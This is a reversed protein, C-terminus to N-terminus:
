HDAFARIHKPPRQTAYKKIMALDSQSTIGADRARQRIDSWDAGSRMEERFKMMLSDHMKNVQSSELEEPTKTMYGPAPTIGIMQPSSLYGMITPEVDEVKSQQIYNRVGFPTMQKLAYEAYDLAQQTKTDGPSRIAGGFFDKNTIIQGVTSLLPHMKNQITNFPNDGYKLFGTIDHGYEAIDKMYTPLSIRDETGDPRVKGTKPFFLDKLESPGKGTYLYQTLAGAIASMFTLAFIYSTRDSLGNWQIKGNADKKVVDKIDIVGGGIERFTGLNWGVSRTSVMLADKLARNWFVNDYVIEGMRNDVSDWLKGMVERKREISMEPEHDIADKAMDFFVGLKQRPVLYEFIPKNIMDMLRPLAKMVVTKYSGQRLAQRFENIGQNRYVDDMKVRGGASVLSEVIASLEPDHLNGMYAKLLRDGKMLNLIPQAPNLAQFVNGAGKIIDGRTAQKIGLAAKSIMADLTTFGLHFASLGLQAGNMFNGAKRILDYVPMGALGPSLHNNIITAAAEPAYYEGRLIMGKEAESWQQVRAIKDDIKVWGDPAHDGFRVFKAIGADKMEGFIKQGYIYRDMERAKLLALEVPNTTIPKLGADLGQKFYDYTRQKLFGKGGELPRRSFLNAATTKDEWIHPFYNENFNELQGKGLAIVADRRADLVKRLAIAAPALDGRVPIGREMRDIFEYNDKVPMTDFRKAFERLNEEAMILQHVREGSNARIIGATKLAADRTAPTFVKAISDGIPKAPGHDIPKVGAYLDYGLGRRDEEPITAPKTAAKSALVTDGAAERGGVLVEPAGKLTKTAISILDEPRLETAWRYWDLKQMGPLNDGLSRLASRFWSLIRQSLPLKPNAELFYGMAEKNMNEPTTGAERARDFAAAVAPNKAKNMLAFENTLQRYGQSDRGMELAHNAIEHLALGMLREPSTSRSINDAVFRTIGDAPDYYALIRGDKSHLIDGNEKNTSDSLVEGLADTFKEQNPAVNIIKRLEDGERQAVDRAMNEHTSFRIKLGNVMIYRSTPSGGLDSYELGLGDLIKLMAAHQAWPHAHNLDSLENLSPLRLNDRAKEEILRDVEKFGADTFEENEADWYKPNKTIGSLDVGGNQEINRIEEQLDYDNLPAQEKRAANLASEKVSDPITAGDIAKSMLAEGRVRAPVEDATVIKVKGTAELADVFKQGGMRGAIPDLAASLAPRFTEPTHPNTVPTNGRSFMLHEFENIKAIRDADDGRKYFRIDTVGNKRLADLAKQSIDHPVVAGAFEPIGVDRLIKAEFYEAPLTRLRDLFVAIDKQKDVPVDGFGNEKLARPIGMKVADYMTSSMTDSFRFEGGVSHYPAFEDRLAFFDKDIEAKVAEFNAKDMLRGKAAKIQAISKLQPTVAARINGVGYNFDEGGRLEKKLIKVVNELTHPTYKPRGMDTYGRFLKENPSITELLDVAYKELDNRLGADYIQGEMLRNTAATDITGSAASDMRYQNVQRAAERVLYSVGRNAANAKLGAIEDAAAKADGDYARVLDDEHAKYAADIFEPDKELDFPHRSDSSFPKLREPLPKAEKRVVGPDIGREKLFQWRVAPSRELERPGNQSVEDWDISSNTADIADKLRGEASKRMNSTFDYTIKPYRPSYIDAGFVRTGAYGRPDAMDKSALLTIEGFGTLPQGKKTIALSPVALGGMKAAHLLNEETLNHQAVLDREDAAKSFLPANTKGELKDAAARLHDAPTMEAAPVRIGYKGSETPHPYAESPLGQATMRAAYQRAQQETYARGTTAAPPTVQGSLVAETNPEGKTAPEPVAVADRAGTRLGLQKRESKQINAQQEALKINRETGYSFGVGKHEVVSGDPLRVPVILNSLKDQLAKGYSELMARDPHAALFEDGSRHFANVGMEAAISAKTSGIARLIQDAEDHGYRSNIAKFDDVDGYLVHSDPHDALHESFARNNPLGTLDSTLLANAREEPTMDAVRRRTTLDHRRDGSQTVEETPTAEQAQLANPTRETPEVIAPARVPEVTPEVRIPANIVADAAAVPDAATMVADAEATPNSELPKQAVEALTQEKATTMRARDSEIRDALPTTKGAQIEALQQEFTPEAAPKLPRISQLDDTQATPEAPAPRGTAVQDTEAAPIEPTSVKGANARAAQVGGIGGFVLANAAIDKPDFWNTKDTDQGALVDIGKNSVTSAVSFGAGVAAQGVATIVGAATATSAKSALGSFLASGKTAVAPGATNLVFSATAHALADGYSKGEDINAQLSDRFAPIGFYGGMALLQVLKAEPLAFAPAIAGLLDASKGLVTDSGHEAQLGQWNKRVVDWDAATSDAGLVSATAAAAGYLGQAAGGFVNIAVDNSVTALHQGFEKPSPMVWPKETGETDAIPLTNQEIDEQVDQDTRPLTDGSSRRSQQRVVNGALAGVAGPTEALKANTEVSNKRMAAMNRNAYDARVPGAGLTIDAGAAPNQEAPKYDAMVSQDGLIATKAGQYLNGAKDMASQIFGPKPAFEPFNKAIAGEMDENSMGDPFSVSRGDPLGVLPM